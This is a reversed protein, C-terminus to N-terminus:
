CRQSILVSWDQTGGRKKVFNEDINLYNDQNNLYHVPNYSIVLKYSGDEMLYTKSTEERLEIIEEVIRAHTIFSTYRIEALM